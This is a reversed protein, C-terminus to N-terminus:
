GASTPPRSSSGPSTSTCGAGSTARRTGPRADARGRPRARHHARQLAVESGASLQLGTRRRARRRGLAPDIDLDCSTSARRRCCRRPTRTSGATGRRRGCAVRRRQTPRATRRRRRGRSRRRAGHRRHPGAPDCRRRHHPLREGPRRQRAGTPARVDGRVGVHAGPELDCGTPRRSSTPLGVHPARARSPRGPRAPHGDHVDARVGGRDADRGANVLRLRMAGPGDAAPVYWSELRLSVAVGWDPRSGDRPAITESGLRDAGSTPTVASGAAQRRVRLPLLRRARPRSAAADDVVVTAHPHLQLVSAPCMSTLPGEVARPSRRRRARVPPSSCCTAPM